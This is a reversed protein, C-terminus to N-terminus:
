SNSKGSCKRKFLSATDILRYGVELSNLVCQECATEEIQYVGYGLMPMKIGNNLLKYEM